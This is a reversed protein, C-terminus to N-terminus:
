ALSSFIYINTMYINHTDLVHIHARFGFESCITLPLGKIRMTIETIGGNIVIM